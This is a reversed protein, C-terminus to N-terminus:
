RRAQQDRIELGARRDVGEACSCDRRRWGGHDDAHRGRRRGRAPLVHHRVPRGGPSSVWITEGTKKDFAMFRHGARAQDGWGTTVGSVIVYPGEIVPSVTRGGHTTVLGMEEVLSREWLKKGNRDFGILMGGVGFTYVNGTELDVSPSAWSARHPPVDSLFVHYAYEWVTKGTDADLAMVREKLAAGQGVVNMLFVRNGAVVPTSRGGFPVRWALNEGKPSWKVPLNKEPSMGDRKPGRWDPWDGAWSMAAVCLLLPVTRMTM